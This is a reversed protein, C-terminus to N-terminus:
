NINNTSAVSITFFPFIKFLILSPYHIDPGIEFSVANEQNMFIIFQILFNMNEKSKTALDSSNGLLESKEPTWLGLVMNIFQLIYLLHM